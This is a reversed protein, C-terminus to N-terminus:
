IQPRGQKPDQQQKREAIKKAFHRRFFFMFVSLAALALSLWFSKAETYRAYADYLFFAAAALYIFSTFNLYNM